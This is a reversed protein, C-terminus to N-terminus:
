NSEPMQFKGYKRKEHINNTETSKFVNRKKGQLDVISLSNYKQYPDVDIGLKLVFQNELEILKQIETHLKFCSECVKHKKFLQVSDLHQFQEQRNIWKFDASRHQLHVDNQLIERLTM